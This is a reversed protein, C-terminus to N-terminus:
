TAGSSQVPQVKHTSIQGIRSLDLALLFAKFIIGCGGSRSPSRSLQSNKKVMGSYSRRSKFVLVILPAM